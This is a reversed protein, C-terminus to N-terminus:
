LNYFSIKETDTILTESYHGDDQMVALKISRVNESPRVTWKMDAIKWLAFLAFVCLVAPIIFYLKKTRM